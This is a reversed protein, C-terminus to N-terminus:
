RSGGIDSASDRPITRAQTAARAHRLRRERRKAVFTAPLMTVALNRWLQSNGPQLGLAHLALRVSRFRRGARLYGISSELYGAARFASGLGHDDFTQKHRAYILERLEFDSCWIKSSLSDDHQRYRYLPAPIHRAALGRESAGIWYDWDEEATM